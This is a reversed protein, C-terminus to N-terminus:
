AQGGTQRTKQNNRASQDSSGTEEIDLDVGQALAQNM